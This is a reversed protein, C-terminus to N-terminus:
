LFNRIKTQQKSLIGLRNPLFVLMSFMNEFKDILICIKQEWIIYFPHYLSTSTLENLTLLYSVIFTKRM